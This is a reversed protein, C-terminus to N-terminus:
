TALVPLPVTDAMSPAVLATILRTNAYNPNFLSMTVLGEEVVGYALALVIISPWALGRRRVVERILLAGGGYMPALAVLAPLATIPLNGLLFEAVLPALLVLGTCLLLRKPM